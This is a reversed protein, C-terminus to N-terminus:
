CASPPDRSNFSEHYCSRIVALDDTMEATHAFLDSIEIGSEGRRKFTRRTQMFKAEFANIQALLLRGGGFDAPLLKGDWQALAPKPDFSDVQSLGEKCSSSSSAKRRPPSILSNPTCLTGVARHRKPLSRAAM